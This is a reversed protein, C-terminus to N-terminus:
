FVEALAADYREAWLQRAGQSEILRVTIRLREGSVRLRGDLVYATGLEAGIRDPAVRADRYALATTPAIVDLERLRGLETAIDEALGAGLYADATEGAAQAFPLVVISPRGVLEARRRARDEAATRFVASREPLDDAERVLTTAEGQAEEPILRLMEANLRETEPAPEVGLENALLERCRRYQVLASGIRDQYMYLRILTRHVSEQLPDLALLRLAIQIARDIGGTVVCHDLLRQLAMRLMEELRQREVALWTDFPEGCDLLGDLLPGKYLAAARELTEPTGDATWREFRVVDVELGDPRVSLHGPEVLICSRAAQPLSERLRSLSKRLDARARSEARDAWLLGALKERRLRQGACIALYALLARTKRTPFAIPEGSSARCEFGGLLGLQLVAM